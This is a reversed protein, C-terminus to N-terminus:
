TGKPEPHTIAVAPRRILTLAALVGATEIAKTAIALGDVPEPEPHLSPVGITTALAYSVILGALVAAAGVLALTSAPRLTVIVASAALLATGVAFGVGAGMGEAVHGPVLAGHIGASIACALIVLDRRVEAHRVDLRRLADLVEKDIQQASSHTGCAARDKGAGRRPRASLRGPLFAPRQSVWLRPGLSLFALAAVVTARL